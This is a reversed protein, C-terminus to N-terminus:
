LSLFGARAKYKRFYTVLDVDKLWIKLDDVHLTSNHAVFTRTNSVSPSSGLDYRKGNKISRQNEGDGVYFFNTGRHFEVLAWKGYSLVSDDTKYIYQGYQFALRLDSDVYFRWYRNLSSSKSEIITNESPYYVKNIIIYNKRIKKSSSTADEVYLIVHYVGPETYTHSPTSTGEVFTGDGFIWRWSTPVGGVTQDTFSVTLPNYGERSSTASFDATLAM